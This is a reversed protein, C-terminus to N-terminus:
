TCDRPVGLASRWIPGSVWFAAPKAQIQCRSGHHNPSCHKDGLHPLNYVVDDDRSHERQGCLRVAVSSLWPTWAPSSAAAGGCSYRRRTPARMGHHCARQADAVRRGGGGWRQGWSPCVVCVISATATGCPVLLSHPLPERCGSTARPLAHKATSPHLPHRGAPHGDNMKPVRPFGLRRRHMRVALHPEVAAGM